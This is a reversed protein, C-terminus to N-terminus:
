QGTPLVPTLIMIASLDQAQTYEYTYLHPRTTQNVVLLERQPIQGVAVTRPQLTQALPRDLQESLDSRKLFVATPRPQEEAPLTPDPPRPPLFVTVADIDERYKFTYLSLELAERQLLAHREESPSGEPISCNEGLGCLVYMVSSRGDVIDIDDEEALGKSTDPRIAIARVPIDGQQGGASVQPPGVLVAALQSGSALRYEKSVHDAIQKVRADPSGEPRWASWAAEPAAEPRSLLLVFSGVAGGLVLALAVYVLAFRSRYASRRARDSRKGGTAGSVPRAPEAEIMTSGAPDKSV